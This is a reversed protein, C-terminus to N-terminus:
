RRGTLARTSCRVHFALGNLARLPVYPIQLLAVHACPESLARLPKHASHPSIGFALIVLSSAKVAMYVAESCWEEGKVRAKAEPYDTGKQQRRKALVIDSADNLKEVAEDVGKPFVRLITLGQAM